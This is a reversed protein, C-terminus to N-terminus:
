HKRSATEHLITIALNWVLVSLCVINRVLLFKGHLLSPEPTKTATIFATLPKQIEETEMAENNTASQELM